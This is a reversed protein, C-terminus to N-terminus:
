QVADDQKEESKKPTMEAIIKNPNERMDLILHWDRLFAGIEKIKYMVWTKDMGFDDTVKEHVQLGFDKLAITMKEIDQKTM